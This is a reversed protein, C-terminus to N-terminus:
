GKEPHSSSSADVNLRDILLELPQLLLRFLGYALHLGQGVLQTGRVQSAVLVGAFPHEVELLDREGDLCLLVLHGCQKLREVAEHHAM